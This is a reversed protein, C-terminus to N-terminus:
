SEQLTLEEGTLAFYLNQLQHVYKIEQLVDVWVSELRGFYLTTGELIHSFSVGSEADLVFWDENEDYEFGFKVLWEETLPIPEACFIGSFSSVYHKLIFRGNEEIGGIQEVSKRQPVYIYNGIRLESAKM